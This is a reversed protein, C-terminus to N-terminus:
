PKIELAKEVKEYGFLTIVALLTFVGALGLIWPNVEGFGNVVAYEYVFLAWLTVAVVTSLSIAIWDTATDPDTNTPM